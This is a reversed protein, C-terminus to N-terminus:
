PADRKVVLVDCPAHQVVYAAVSGLVLRRIGSHGHSGVVVLDVREDRATEVLVHRPDGHVVRGHADFGAQRLRQETHVALEEHETLAAAEIVALNGAVAAVVQPEPAYQRETPAVVSLALVPTGVPLPLKCLAAVTSRSHPSSDIGILIKM